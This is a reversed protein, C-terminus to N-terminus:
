TQHLRATIVRQMRNLYNPKFSGDSNFAANMWPQTKSYGVSSGEQFNVTVALLGHDRYLPLTSIFERTNRDPYDIGTDPYAWRHRTKPNEDDFTAQVMRGNMLLGEIKLGHWTLGKCTPKGDILCQDEHINVATV